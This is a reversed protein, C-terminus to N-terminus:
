NTKNHKFFYKGPEFKKFISEIKATQRAIMEYRLTKPKLRQRQHRQHYGSISFTSESPSSLSCMTNYKLAEVFLLPYERRNKSVWFSSATSDFKGGVTKAQNYLLTVKTEYM